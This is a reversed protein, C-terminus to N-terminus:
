RAMRVARSVAGAIQIPDANTHANITVNVNGSNQHNNTISSNGAFGAAGSPASPMSPLVGADERRKREAIVEELTQSGTTSITGTRGGTEGFNLLWVLADFYKDIWKGLPNLSDVFRSIFNSADGAGVAIKYLTEALASLGLIMPAGIAVIGGLVALSGVLGAGGIFGLIGLLSSAGMLLPGGAVLVGGLAALGVFVHPNVKAWEAFSKILPVIVPILSQLAPIVADGVEIAANVLQNRVQKVQNSFAKMQKESVDQATGGADRLAKEYDHIKESTGILTQIYSISKDTFGLLLLTAKQQEDNMGLLASELNGIIEGLNNMEGNSDFVAINMEAFAEKNKIAKTQLDRMIISFATGADAGKVGQDAFAALVAVGEEIDKGTAKLAAGAKTTLSESFQEVSANALTNAKVLVDSVRVMGEQNKATDKSSLGLASQADTVLDTARALDFNGATAFKVVEPLAAMSQEANMGASALYFYATALETASFKSEGSLQKALAAMKEKTEDSLNGMIATSNTMAEDFDAAFKTAAGLGALIAGGAITMGRGLSRAMRQINGFRQKSLREADGLGKNLGAMNTNLYLIADGLSFAM